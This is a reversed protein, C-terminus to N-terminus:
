NAPSHQEANVGLLDDEGTVQISTGDQLTRVDSSIIRSSIQLGTTVRALDGDSSAEIQIRQKRAIGESQDALWVFTGDEDQDVLRRPVYLHVVPADDAEPEARAPALFTADVLMDPKLGSPSNPLAVKVQLTNKQVNAKSGIFLVRGELPAALAPNEITVIQDAHIRPLDEFRVDVGVQLHEPQYLTVVTGEDHGDTSGGDGLRTGPHAVLQFVRGDVLSRVTMRDLKLEAESVAIKAEAVRALAAQVKAESQEKDLTEDIRLQLQTHLADRQQQVALRENELSQSRDRLESVLAKAAQVKGAALDIEVGSVLGNAQLKGQYDYELATHDAEARRIEFPLAKLDSEVEALTADAAALAAELHVPQQYRAEAAARAAEAEKLEAQRLQLAALAKEHALQVDIQVLKAVVDGAKVPQDEVVMLEAVVGTALAAVHVPTPRPEVWGPAKFLPTGERRLEATTTIVPVVTVRTPPLLIDRSAWAMLAIFGGALAAPLLYRALVKRRREVTPSDASQRDIALERLNVKDSMATM